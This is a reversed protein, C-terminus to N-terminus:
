EACAACLMVTRKKQHANTGYNYRRNNHLDLFTCYKVSERYDWLRLKSATGSLCTPSVDTLV